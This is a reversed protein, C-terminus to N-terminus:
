DFTGDGRVGVVFLGNREAEAIVTEIEAVIASGAVVAIGALGARAVGDVTGPGITPLDFRRDQGPKPAKVLVGKSPTRIRGNARMDAVRALLGDTGEVGEVALCHLDAVVAAQGIDFRGVADLVALGRAIDARWREDPRPGAIVGEPVLLAPAVEHAGLVRLGQEEFIGGLASLLHNDGGRFAVILRPLMRLTTLDFRLQSLAPRVLGGIFVLDVCGEGRALRVLKGGQGLAIWHHPFREARAADAFGRLPFLVVKRGRAAAAEAVAYPLSGAGCVVALPGADQSWGPEPSAM